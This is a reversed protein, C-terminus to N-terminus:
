QQRERIVKGEKSLITEIEPYIMRKVLLRTEEISLEGQPDDIQLARTDPSISGLFDIMRSFGEVNKEWFTRGELDFKDPKDGNSRRLSADIGVKLYVLLDPYVGNVAEQNAQWVRGAGLGRGGFAQYALSTTFSRDSIVIGGRELVPVIVQPITIARSQAFLSMEDEGSMQEYKLRQRLKDAEPNGGPEYTFTIDSNPFDLPLHQKLEKIQASKGCGIIGDFVIYLGPLNNAKAM